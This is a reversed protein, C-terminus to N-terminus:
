KGKKKAPSTIAARKAERAAVAKKAREKREAPTMNAATSKGGKSGIQSLYQTINAPQM